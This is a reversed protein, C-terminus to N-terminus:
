SGPSGEHSGAIMPIRQETDNEHLQSSRYYEDNKSTSSLRRMLQGCPKNEYMNERMSLPINRTYRSLPTNFSHIVFHPINVSLYVDRSVCM